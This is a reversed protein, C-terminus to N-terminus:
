AEDCLKLHRSAEVSKWPFHRSISVGLSSKKYTNELFNLREGLSRRLDVYATRYYQYEVIRKDNLYTKSGQVRHSLCKQVKLFRDIYM